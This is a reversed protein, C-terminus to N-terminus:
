AAHAKVANARAEHFQMKRARMKRFPVIKLYGHWNLRFFAKKGTM